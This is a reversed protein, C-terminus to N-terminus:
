CNLGQTSLRVDGNNGETGGSIYITGPRSGCQNLVRKFSPNVEPHSTRFISSDTTQMLVTCNGWTAKVSPTATSQANFNGKHDVPLQNLALLCDNPQFNCARKQCIPQNVNYVNSTTSRYVQAQTGDAYNRIGGSTRCTRAIALVTAEVWQRTPQKKQLKQINIVCTKHWTFVTSSRSDLLGNSDYVINRLARQCHNVNLGTYQSKFCTVNQTQQAILTSPLAALVMIFGLMSFM